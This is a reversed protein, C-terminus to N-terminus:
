SVKRRKRRSVGGAALLASALLALSAPEPVPKVVSGNLNVTLTYNNMGVGADFDSL